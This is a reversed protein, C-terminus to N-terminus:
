PAKRVTDIDMPVSELSGGSPGPKDSRPAGSHKNCHFTDLRKQIGECAKILEDLMDLMGPHTILLEQMKPSLGSHFRNHLKVQSYEVQDAHQCFESVYTPITKDGQKLHHLAHQTNEEMIIIAFCEEFAKKCKAWDNNFATGKPKQLFQMAWAGATGEM